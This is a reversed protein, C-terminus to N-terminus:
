GGPLDGLGHFTAARSSGALALWVVLLLALTTRGVAGDTKM